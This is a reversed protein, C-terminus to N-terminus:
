SGSYIREMKRYNSKERRDFNQNLISDAESLKKVLLKAKKDLTRCTRASGMRNLRRYVKKALQKYLRGHVREHNSLLRYMKKWKTREKRKVGSFTSPKPLKYVIELKVNAGKVRCGKSTKRRILQFSLSRTATAWARKRHQFSYPGKSGMSRAFDSATRGYITYFKTKESVLAGKGKAYSLTIPSFFLSCFFLIAFIINSPM